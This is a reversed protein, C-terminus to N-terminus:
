LIYQEQKHLYFHLKFTQQIYPPISDGIQPSHCFPMQSSINHCIMVHHWVKALQLRVQWKNLHTEKNNNADKEELMGWLHQELALPALCLVSAPNDKNIDFPNFHLGKSHINFLTNNAPPLIFQQLGYFDYFLNFILTATLLLHFPASLWWICTSIHAHSNCLMHAEDLIVLCFLGDLSAGWSPCITQHATGTSICGCQM